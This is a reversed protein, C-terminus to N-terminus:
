NHMRPHFEVFVQKLRERSVHTYIQTSSIDAHGLMEKVALLDAGHAILHTAFTHRLKHPSIEKRIGAELAYKKLNKWFGQRTMGAGKRTVFLTPVNSPAKSLLEPRSTELYRQIWLHACEGMPILRDKSGKGHATICGNDLDLDRVNLNVLESVRMGTAYLLEIMARDRLGEPTEENPAKLLADVESENLYVPDRQAYKPIDIHEAPNVELLGDGVLFSMWQRISILNHALTREKVPEDEDNLRSELYGRIHDQTISEITNCGDDELYHCFHELERRYSAQTNQALGREAKLFTMFQELSETLM